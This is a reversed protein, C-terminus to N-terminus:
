YGWLERDVAGALVADCGGGGAAMERGWFGDESVDFGGESTLALDNGIGSVILQEGFDEDFGVRDRGNAASDDIKGGFPFFRRDSEEEPNRNVPYFSRQKFNLNIPGKYARLLPGESHRGTFQQVLARFNGPDAALLTAPAKRPRAKRAAPKGVRSRPGTPSGKLGPGINRAPSPSLDPPQFPDDFFPGPITAIIEEFSQEWFEESSQM